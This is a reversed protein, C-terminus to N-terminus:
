DAFPEFLVRVQGKCHGLIGRGAEIKTSFLTAAAAEAVQLLQYSKCCLGLSEEVHVEDGGKTERELRSM